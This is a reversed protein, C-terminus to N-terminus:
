LTVCENCIFASPGAILREVEAQSKGCFSCRHLKRPEFPEKPM